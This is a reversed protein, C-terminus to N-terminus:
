IELPCTPGLLLHMTSHHMVTVILPASLAKAAAAIAKGTQSVSHCEHISDDYGQVVRRQRIMYDYCIFFDLLEPQLQFYM